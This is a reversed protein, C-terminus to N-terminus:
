VGYATAPTVHRARPFPGFIVEGTFLPDTGIHGYGRGPPGLVLVARGADAVVDRDPDALEDFRRLGDDGDRPQEVPNLSVPDKLKHAAEYLPRHGTPRRATLIPHESPDHTM